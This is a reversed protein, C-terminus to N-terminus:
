RQVEQKRKKKEAGLALENINRGLMIWPKCSFHLDQLCLVAKGHGSKQYCRGIQIGERYALSTVFRSDEGLFAARQTQFAHGYM